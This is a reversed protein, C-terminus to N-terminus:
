LLIPQNTYSILIRIKLMPTKTIFIRGLLAMLRAIMSQKKLSTLPPTDLNEANGAPGANDDIGEMLMSERIVKERLEPDRNVIDDLETLESFTAKGTKQRKILIDFRDQLFTRREPQKRHGM